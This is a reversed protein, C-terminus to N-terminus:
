PWQQLTLYERVIHSLVLLNHIKLPLVHYIQIVGLNKTRM